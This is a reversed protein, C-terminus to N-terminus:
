AGTGQAEEPQWLFEGPPHNGQWYGKMWRSVPHALARGLMDRLLWGNDQRRFDERYALEAAYWDLYKGAMRHHTGKEARKIRLNFGEVQNTNNNDEDAYHKDHDVATHKWIAGLDGYAAHSDTLIRAGRAVHKRALAIAAERNETLTVATVTRGSRQRLVLVCRRKGTQNEVLRADKRDAKRNEKRRHGGIYCGDIEVTGDLTLAVRESAIAERLKTMLVFATKWQVGLQRTLLLAAENKVANAALSLAALMDRFSLKHSAFITKSTVSFDGRCDSCRFRRRNTEYFRASVSGCQPCHDPVGNTKPWRAKKFEIYATNERMRMVRAVPLPRSAASLLYHQGPPPKWAM